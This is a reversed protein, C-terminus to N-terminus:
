INFASQLISYVLKDGNFNYHTGDRTLTSGTDGSAVMAKYLSGYQSTSFERFFSFMDIYNVNKTKMYASVFDWNDLISQAKGASNIAFKEDGTITDFGGGNVSATSLFFLVEIDVFNGTKAVMSLPQSLNFIWEEFNSTYFAPTRDPIINYYLAGLNIPALEHIIFNPSHSYIDNDQFSMLSLQEAPNRWAHSGKAADVLILMSPRPSTEFGWWMFRGSGNNRITIKKTSGISNITGSKCRFKLRKQFTTNGKTLTVAPEQMTFIFGNAEVWTVGNFVEMKGNGEEIAVTCSGGNLATRYIFYNLWSDASVIWSVSANPTDSYETWGYRKDYDDWEPLGRVAIFSGVKTFPSIGDKIYDYRRYKQGGWQAVLKDWLYGVYNYHGLLPPRSTVDARVISHLNTSLSTGVLIVVVDMDKEKYHKTFNPAKLNFAPTPLNSQTGPITGNNAVLYEPNIVKILQYAEVSVEETGEALQFIGILDQDNISTGNRVLNLHVNDIGLGMPVTFMRSGNPLTTFLINEVGITAAGSFYGGTYSLGAPLSGTSNQEVYSKGEKVPIPGSDVYKGGESSVFNKFTQSYRLNWRIKQPDALNKKPVKILIEDDLMELVDPYDRLKEPILFGDGFKQYDLPTTGKVIMISNIVVNNRLDLQHANLYYGAHLYTNATLPPVTSSGKKDNTGAVTAVASIRNGASDFYLVKASGSPAGYSGNWSWDTGPPLIGAPIRILFGHNSTQINTTPTMTAVQIFDNEKDFLQPSKEVTSLVPDFYRKTAKMNAVDTSVPDFKDKAQITPMKVFSGLSWKQTDKDWWNTNDFEPPALWAAGTANKYWGVVKTMKRNTNLLNTPAPLVVAEAETAGGTVSKEELSAVVVSDKVRKATDAVVKTGAIVTVKYSKAM